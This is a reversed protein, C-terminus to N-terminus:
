SEITAVDQIDTSQGDNFILRTNGDPTFDVRRVSNELLVDANSGDSAKASIHYTGNAVMAGSQDKGDWKWDYDGDAGAPVTMSNVTNGNQDTITMTVDGTGGASLQATGSYGSSNGNVDLSNTKYDVDKNILQSSELRQNGMLAMIQTQSLKKLDSIGQSTSIQSLQTVMQTSDMPNMPDQNRLEATLMTLFNNELSGNNASPQNSPPTDGSDAINQSASAQTAGLLNM